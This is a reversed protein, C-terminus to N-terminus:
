ENRNAAQAEGSQQDSPAETVDNLFAYLGALDALARCGGTSADRASARWVVRWEARRDVV